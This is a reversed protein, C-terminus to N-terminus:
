NLSERFANQEAINQEREARFRWIEHRRLDDLDEQSIGSTPQTTSDLAGLIKLTTDAVSPLMELAAQQNKLIRAAYEPDSAMKENHEDWMNQIKEQQQKALTNELKKRRLASFLAMRQQAAMRRQQLYSNAQKNLAQNQLLYNNFHQQSNAAANEIHNGFQAFALEPLACVATLTLISFLRM